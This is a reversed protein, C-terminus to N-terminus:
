SWPNDPDVNRENRSTAKDGANIEGVLWGITLGAGFALIAIQAEVTFLFAAILDEIM